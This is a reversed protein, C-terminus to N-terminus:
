VFHYTPYEDEYGNYDYYLRKGKAIDRTTILFVRCEGDVNYRVCKVNQKKKGELTHNNIDNIFRAINGRKDPCVVLSQSPDTALLLTMLSDCDDRDRNKICDVDGCYEAIYTMDKIPSDAQVTFGENSDYVVLLPPCEGRRCMARCQNVTETDEKSLVIKLHLKIQLDQLLTRSYTLEDSYEIKCATLATALFRMQKLKRAPDETPIFPLFRRRTKHIVISRRRRKKIEQSPSTCKERVNKYKQISFFDIIKKQSIRRVRSPPREVCSPCLWQGVPVRAVVPRVCSMHFGVDCGDCLLLEHPREGGGCKECLISSYDEREIVVHKARALISRLSRIKRPPSLPHRRRFPRPPTSANPEPPPPPPPPPTTAPSPPTSPSM